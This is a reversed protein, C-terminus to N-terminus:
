MGVVEVKSKGSQRKSVRIQVPVRETMEQVHSIVGVKRGQNHLRELADMAINLTAPDLSGFGEDIFLSEVKMRNSSLSALGLALALSVLFSEGGSLSYVTRVENGMDQDLVQLGLSNPIRQLVYRRSLMELHVNAYSLLVDLTYEQAVQRFKKGDASGIMENLKAWNDVVQSQREINELLQGIRQKNVEDDKIKFDIENATQNNQKWTAQAETQLAILAELTRESLRQATHNELAKVREEFVSRAQMVADDIARLGTREKEIWDRTFALLPLLETETLTTEYQQNHNNLWEGLKEKLETEQKSLFTSDKELQESQATNRTINGQVLEAEKKKQEALQRASSVANKLGTEIGTVPAGNFITKRRESLGNRQLQLSSLKQEKLAVEERITDAQKRIGKLKEVLVHQKRINEELREMSTKWELAFETIHKAFTEPNSQWNQFWKESTFYGSLTEKLKDLKSEAKQREGEDHAKQEQLSKLARGIDKSDNEADNFRKELATLKTKHVELNDKQKGYSQIQQQLQQQKEKQLQLQQQLWNGTEEVPLNVCRKSIGFETWKHTLEEITKTKDAVSAEYVSINKRIQICAQNLSSHAALQQAYGSEAQRYSVELGALVQGLSPDHLAYPHETSGCVPCPEGPELQSRLKEISGAAILRAKELSKLSVDREAKKIELLREAATLKETQEGLEKQHQTLSQQRAEKEKIATYLLRWHATASIIDGVLTDTAAKEAEIDQIPIKLLATQFANYGQQLQQLSKRVTEKEKELQQAQQQYAATEQEANHIRLAYHHLSELVSEADGLKSLIMREQEAVPRRAEHDIKWQTLKTVEQELLDSEKQAQLLQGSLEKQRSHIQENEEAAQKIQEAKESLQVDLAKAEDLLPQADEEEKIKTGLDNIAKEIAVDLIQKQQQLTSLRDNLEALQKSKSELQEQVNQLNNILPRVPQIRDVVQLHQERPAAAEKNRNAQDYALRATEVGEQFKVRQEHWNIEKSLDALQQDGAKIIATLAIRQEQLADLEEMTLTAIGERRLRLERLKQQQERHNEFIRKSIESYISTGTLKELLASKEDRGAKLFATFDGQALLVSRTFQEFNLGVLREIEELLETKKGPVNTHTSMNKLTIGFAQLSGEAKNYARRVTWTARYHQGDIGAFDVEAYGDATGDRLIGRVDGQHITSGQVDKIEIGSEAMRYRPTKAYLALCLADLITSKGAGTPGTIAFIGASSLPERTFDIETVGDLSALNKIRIAFIRM